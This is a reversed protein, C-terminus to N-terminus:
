RDRRSRLTLREYELYWIAERPRGVFLCLESIALFNTRSFYEHKDLVDRAATGQEVPDLNDSPDAAPAKPDH